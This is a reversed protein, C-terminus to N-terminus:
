SPPMIRLMLSKDKNFLVDVRMGVRPMNPDIFTNATNSRRKPGLLDPVVGTARRQKGNVEFAYDVKFFYGTDVNGMSDGEQTWRTRGWIAVRSRVGLISGRTVNGRGMTTLYRVRSRFAQADAINASGLAIFLIAIGLCLWFAASQMTNTESDSNIWLFFFLGALMLTFVGGIFWMTGSRAINRFDEMVGGHRAPNYAEYAISM